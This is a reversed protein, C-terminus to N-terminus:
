IFPYFVFGVHICAAIQFHGLEKLIHTLGAPEFKPKSAIKPM